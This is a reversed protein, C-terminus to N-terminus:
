SVIGIKTDCFQKIDNYPQQSKQSLIFFLIQPRANFANGTARYLENCNVDVQMTNAYMIHPRPNEVVGGHAVWTTCFQRVFQQLVAQECDRQRAFVMIGWNKIVTPKAFKLGRLDWRGGIPQFNNKQSGQGYMVKPTPLVRAMTQIMTPDITLGYRRLIPDNAWDLSAVNKLIHNRRENPRTVTFKIMDA